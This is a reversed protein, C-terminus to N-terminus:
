ASTRQLRLSRLHNFFRNAAAIDRAIQERLQEPGAFKKEDRLKKWFRLEMRNADITETVGLLHTEVSLSSGHFTPRVGINTVSRRSKKEGQLVTRTVYVGRLPLLEQEPQLNLTPFTFRSGTGTGKVIAGTLAFPRGLLRGARAVDGEAIERRIATSSVIEGRYVVPALIGVEFGFSAGLEKLHGADGSQKYGFRFNEGVLVARVLLDRVLIGEVFEGPTLKSLELTFPLVVASEVGAVRFWDLRQENTSIRKPASDPRLVKLPPPEFTLATAVAGSEHALSVARRLIAQHGLHIGDFNGIALISGRNAPGYQMKWAESSSFV